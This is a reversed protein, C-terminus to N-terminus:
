LLVLLFTIHANYTVDCKRTIVHPFFPYFSISHLRLFPHSRVIQSLMPLGALHGLHFLDSWSLYWLIRNMVRLVFVRFLCISLCALLILRILVCQHNGSPLPHSQALPTFPLSTSAEVLPTFFDQPHLTYCLSYPGQYQLITVHQCITLVHTYMAYCLLQIVTTCRFTIDCQAGAMCFYFYSLLFFFCTYSKSYMKGYYMLCKLGTILIFIYSVKYERKM